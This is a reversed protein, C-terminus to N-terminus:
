KVVAAKWATEQERAQMVGLEGQRRARDALRIARAYEGKEALKKALRIMKKTDRWEFGVEAAAKRAAEASEYAAKFAGADDASALSPWVGTALAAAVVAAALLRRRGSAHGM